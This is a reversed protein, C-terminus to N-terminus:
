RSPGSRKSRWADRVINWVGGGSRPDDDGSPGSGSGRLSSRRASPTAGYLDAAHVPGYEDLGFREAYVSYHEKPCVPALACDAAHPCDVVAVAFAEAEGTTGSAHVFNGSRYETGALPFAVEPFSAGLVPLGSGCEAQWRVCPHRFAGTVVALAWSREDAPLPKLDALLRALLESERMASDVYPDRMTPRMPYPLHADVQKGLGSERLWRLMPVIEHVNQKVFITSVRVVDASADARLGAIAELVERQSGPTGTVADHTQATLGYLPVYVQLHSPARRLFEGRFARDALRRGTSFVTLAPFGMGRIAEVVDLVRSHRLPDIGNLRVERVGHQQAKELQMRVDDLDVDGADTPTVYTKVSCFVCRQGCDPDLALNLAPPPGVDEEAAASEGGDDRIRAEITDSRAPYSMARLEALSQPVRVDLAASSKLRLLAVVWSALSAVDAPVEDVEGQHSIGLSLRGCRGFAKTEDGDARLALQATQQRGERSFELVYAAFDASQRRAVSPLYVGRFVWGLIAPGDVTIEPALFEAIGPPDFILTAPLPQSAQQLFGQSGDGLLPMEPEVLKALRLRAGDDALSAEAALHPFHRAIPVGGRLLLKAFGRTVQAAERDDLGAVQRYSVDGLPTSQLCRGEGRQRVLIQIKATGDDRELWFSVATPFAGTVRAVRWGSM